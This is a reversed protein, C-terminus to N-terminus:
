KASWEEGGKSAAFHAIAGTKDVNPRAKFRDAAELKV